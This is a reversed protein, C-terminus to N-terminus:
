MGGGAQLASEPTGETTKSAMRGRLLEFSDHIRIQRGYPWAKVPLLRPRSSSSSSNITVTYENIVDLIPSSRRISSVRRLVSTGYDFGTGIYPSRKLSVHPRHGRVYICSRYADRLRIFSSHVHLAAPVVAASAASPHPRVEDLTLYM